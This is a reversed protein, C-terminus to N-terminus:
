ESSILRAHARVFAYGVHYKLSTWLDAPELDDTWNGEGMWRALCNFYNGGCNCEQGFLAWGFHLMMEAIWIRM